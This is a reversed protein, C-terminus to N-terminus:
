ASLQQKTERWVSRIGAKSSQLARNKERWVELFMVLLIEEQVNGVAILTDIAAHLAYEWRSSGGHLPMHEQLSRCKKTTQKNTTSKINFLRKNWSSCSSKTKQRSHGMETM